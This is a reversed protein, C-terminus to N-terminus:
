RPAAQTGARAIRYAWTRGRGADVILVRGTETAMLGLTAAQLPAPLPVSSLLRGRETDWLFLERGTVGALYRWNAVFALDLVERTGGGGFGVEHCELVALQRKTRLDVLHVRSGYLREPKRRFDTDKVYGGVAGLNGDPSVATRSVSEARMPEADLKALGAIAPDPAPARKAERPQAPAAVPGELRLAIAEPQVPSAIDLGLRICADDVARRVAELLASDRTLGDSPPNGPAGMATSSHANVRAEADVLRLDVAATATHFDAIGPVAEASVYSRAVGDLEYKAANAVFDEATVFYGPDDLRKWVSKLEAAKREDLVVAGNDALIREVRAQAAQVAAPPVEGPAFVTVAVKKGRLDAAGALSALALIAAWGPAWVAPKTRM